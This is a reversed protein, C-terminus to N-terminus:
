TVQFRPRRGQELVAKPVRVVDSAIRFLELLKIFYYTVDIEWWYFGNRAAKSFRHHNNHWGEGLLLIALIISNRSTDKTKFRQKGVLHAASNILFTLNWELVTSLFFGIFLTSLGTRWGDMFGYVTVGIGLLWPAVADHDDLWRLEPFSALDEVESYDTAKYKDCLIWGTHSWWFGRGPSHIDLPTDSYKHHKRHHAAWWLPGKQIATTGWAALLFQPVRKLKYAAHSFYRHYGATIALLRGVCLVGCIVWAKTPIGTWISGLPLFYVLFFPFSAKWNVHEDEARVVPTQDLVSISV